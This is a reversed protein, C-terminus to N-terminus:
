LPGKFPKQFGTLSACMEWSVYSGITHIIKFWVLIIFFVFFVFFMWQLPNSISREFLTITTNNHFIWRNNNVEKHGSSPSKSDAGHDQQQWYAGRGCGSARIIGSLLCSLLCDAEPQSFILAPVHHVDVLWLIAFSCLRGGWTRCVFPVVVHPAAHKWRMCAIISEFDWSFMWCVGLLWTM